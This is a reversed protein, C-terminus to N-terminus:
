KNESCLNVISNKGLLSSRVSTSWAFYGEWAAGGKWRFLRWRMWLNEGKGQGDGAAGGGLFAKTLVGMWWTVLFSSGNLPDDALIQPWFDRWLCTFIELNKWETLYCANLFFLLDKRKGESEFHRAQLGWKKETVWCFKQLTKQWGTNLHCNRVLKKNTHTHTKHDTARM